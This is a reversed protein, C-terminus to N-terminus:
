AADNRALSVLLGALICVPWVSGGSSLLPIGSYIVPPLLGFWVCFGHLVPVLVVAGGGVATFVKKAGSETRRWACVLACAFAVFLGLGVALIWKGHTLAAAVPANRSFRGPLFWKRREEDSPVVWKGNRLAACTEKQGWLRALENEPSLKRGFFAAACELKESDMAMRVAFGGLYVTAVLMLFRVVHRVAFKEVFWAALLAAILSFDDWLDIVVPGVVLFHRGKIPTQCLAIALMVVWGTAIYPSARLLRKWGIVLSIAFFTGGVCLRLFQRRCMWYHQEGLRTAYGTTDPSWFLCLLGLASILALSLVAVAAWTWRPMVLRNEFASNGLADTKIENKM